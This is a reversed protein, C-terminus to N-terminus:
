TGTELLSGKVTTLAEHDRTRATKEDSAFNPDPIPTRKCLKKLQSYNQLCVIPGHFAVVILLYVDIFIKLM